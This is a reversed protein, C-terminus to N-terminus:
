STADLQRLADARTKVMTFLRDLSCTQVVHRLRPSLGCLVIQGGGAMLRQRVNVLMGLLSSGAYLADTLDLVWRGAPAIALVSLIQQNLPDFDESSVGEPVRLALVHATGDLSHQASAISDASHSQQSM